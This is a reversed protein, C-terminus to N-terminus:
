GAETHAGPQSESLDIASTRERSKYRTLRSKRNVASGSLSAKYKKISPKNPHLSWGAKTGHFFNNHEQAIDPAKQIRITPLQVIPLVNGNKEASYKIRM